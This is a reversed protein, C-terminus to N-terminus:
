APCEFNKKQVRFVTPYQTCTFHANESWDISLFSSSKKNQDVGCGITVNKPNVFEFMEKLSM